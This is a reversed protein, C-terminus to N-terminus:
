KKTCLRRPGELPQYTCDASTFSRYAAECAQVNCLPADAEQTSQSVTQRPPDAPVSVPAPAPAPVVPEQVAVPPLVPSHRIPEAGVTQITPKSPPQSALDVGTIVSILAAMLVAVYFLFSM